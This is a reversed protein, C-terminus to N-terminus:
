ASVWNKSIERDLAELDSEGARVKGGTLRAGGDQLKDTLLFYAGGEQKVIALKVSLVREGRKALVEPVSAASATSLVSAADAKKEDTKTDSKVMSDQGDSGSKKPEPIAAPPITAPTQKGSSAPKPSSKAGKQSKRACVACQESEVGAHISCGSPDAHYSGKTIRWGQTKMRALFADDDEEKKKSLVPTVAGSKNRFYVTAVAVRPNKARASEEETSPKAAPTIRKPTSVATPVLTKKKKAM